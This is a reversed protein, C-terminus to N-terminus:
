TPSTGSCCWVTPSSGVALWPPVGPKTLRVGLLTPYASAEGWLRQESAPTIVLFCRAVEVGCHSLDFIAGDPSREIILVAWGTNGVAGGGRAIIV